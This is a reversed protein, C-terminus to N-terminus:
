RDRESVCERERRRRLYIGAMSRETIPGCATRRRASCGQIYVGRVVHGLIYRRCLIGDRNITDNAFGFPASAAANETGLPVEQDRGIVGRSKGNTAGDARVQRKDFRYGPVTKPFHRVPFSHSNSSFHTMLRTKPVNRADQTGATDTFGVSSSLRKENRCWETTSGVDVRGGSLNGKRLRDRLGEDGRMLRM